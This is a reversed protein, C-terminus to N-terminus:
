AGELAARLAPDRAKAERLRRRGHVITPHRHEAIAERYSRRERLRAWYAACGPRLDDRVFVHRADVQELRELLVLWGVDALTFQSGLIWPGTSQALQKELADLHQGMQARSRALIKMAPGIRRLCSLGMAKMLAFMLPRRRDFHFLLGEAIRWYPIPQIMAAFLPLTLGPVTNGASLDGQQLPDETISSRDIWREMEVRLAPDDPVLSPAGAPAHAAAHRIQEHSEYVPHGRHVLVPVTGAPNVRLFPPRVNAYAGTEILDVPHSAYRVGLEALCLRTKTSCLSFANHYLEFEQEHPLAVEPRYGAAVPHRKRRSLELGWWAVGAGLFALLVLAALM